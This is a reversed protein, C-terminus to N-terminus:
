RSNRESIEQLFEEVQQPSRGIFQQVDLLGELEKKSIGFAEDAAIQELLNNPLGEHKIRNAAELSYIRIREHLAQRDGGKKVAAMLINETALFPLEEAIHREIIKENVVLGDTVQLLLSLISDATLFSEAISMRRNASDDLSRELWQTAHTYVPNQELAILIRALSCIRECLMPNRKYPMASSGVQKKGFPEEIEKLGALLRLDTAMKHASAALGALAQLVQTDQKRTYTQGSISFLNKIGMKEAVKQDLQKVKDQDGEFLALFSAQTGTAGKVGLFSLNDKRYRVENLDMWLDQLWLSARKGVTTLQAPQFHTFGLCPLKAYKKAFAALQDIAKKLKKAILSLGEDMQMLDANDTVYCSTAGLHIISRAKPCLDGLAHIHAMVDHNLEREYAAAAEFDIDEIHQRLEEIQENSIKLGLERQAEALAVWLRRWTSHKYQASFLFSMERGAYRTGLPSQYVSHRSCSYDQLDKSKIQNQM